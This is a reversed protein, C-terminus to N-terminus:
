SAAQQNHTHDGGRATEVRGIAYLMARLRPLSDTPTTLVGVGLSSALIAKGGRWLSRSTRDLWLYAGPKAHGDRDFTILTDPTLYAMQVADANIIFRAARHFDARDRPMSVPEIDGRAPDFLYAQFHPNM